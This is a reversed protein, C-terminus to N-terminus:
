VQMVLFNIKSNVLVEKLELRLVENVIKEKDYDVLETHFSGTSIDAYSLAYCHDFDYISKM